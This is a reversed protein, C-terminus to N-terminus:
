RTLEIEISGSEIGAYTRLIVQGNNLLDKESTHEIQIGETEAALPLAKTCMLEEVTLEGEWIVWGTNVLKIIYNGPLIDNFSKRGPVKEFTREGVLGKDNFLGVVPFGQKLDESAEWRCIEEYEAQLEPHSRIINLVLEMEHETGEFMGTALQAILERVCDTVTIEHRLYAAEMFLEFNRFGKLYRKQTGMQKIEAFAKKLASEVDPEQLARALIEIFYLNESM